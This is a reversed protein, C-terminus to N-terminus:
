RCGTEAPDAELIAAGTAEAQRRAGAALDGLSRRREAARAAVDRLHAADLKQNVLLMDKRRWGGKLAWDSLTSVPVNLAISIDARSEGGRARMEAEQQLRETEAETRTNPM